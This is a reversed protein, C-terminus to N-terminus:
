NLQKKYLKTSKFNNNGVFLQTFTIFIQLFVYHM